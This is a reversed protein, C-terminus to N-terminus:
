GTLPSVEPVKGKTTLGAEVPPFLGGSLPPPPLPPPAKPPSPSRRSNPRQASLRRRRMPQLGATGGDPRGAGTARLRLRSAKTRRIPSLVRSARTFHAPSRAEGRARSAEMSVTLLS